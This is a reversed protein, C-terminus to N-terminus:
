QAETVQTTHMSVSGPVEPPGTVSPGPFVGSHTHMNYLQMLFTENVLKQFSGMGLRISKGNIDVKNSNVTFKKTAVISYNKAIQEKKDGVIINTMTGGVTTKANQTIYAEYDEELYMFYSKFQLWLKSMSGFIEFSEAGTGQGAVNAGWMQKIYVNGKKDVKFTTCNKGTPDNEDYISLKARCEEKTTPITEVKGKNDIVDGYKIEILNTKKSESGIGVKRKIKLSYEKAMDSVAAVVSTGTWGGVPVATEPEKQTQNALNGIPKRKVTGLREEISCTDTSVDNDKRRFLDAYQQNENSDLVLKILVAPGGMLHLTGTRSGYVEAGGPFGEDPTGSRFNFEGPFIDRLVIPKKWQRAKEDGESGPPTITWEDGNKTAQILQYYGGRSTEAGEDAGGKGSITKAPAPCIYGLIEPRNGLGYGVLVMDGRNPM